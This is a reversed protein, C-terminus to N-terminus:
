PVDGLRAINGIYETGFVSKYFAFAEETNRPFNLYISVKSM